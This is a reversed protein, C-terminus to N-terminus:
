YTSVYDSASTLHGSPTGGNHVLKLFIPFGIDIKNNTRRCAFVWRGTFHCRLSTLNFFTKADNPSQSKGSITETDEGM